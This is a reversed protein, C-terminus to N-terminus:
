CSMLPCPPTHQRPKSILHKPHFLGPLLNAVPLYSMGFNGAVVTHLVSVTLQFNMDFLKREGASAVADLRLSTEISSIAQKKPPPVRLESLAIVRTVVPVTRVQTLTAEFHEALDPEVLIQAGGEGQILIDQCCPCLVSLNDFTSGDRPHVLAASLTM